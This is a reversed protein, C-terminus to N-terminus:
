HKWASSKVLVCLDFLQNAFRHLIACALDNVIGMDEMKASHQVMIRGHFLWISSVMSDARPLPHYFGLRSEGEDAPLPRIATAVM